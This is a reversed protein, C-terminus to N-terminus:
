GHMARRAQVLTSHLQPTTPRPPPLTPLTVRGATAVDLGAGTANWGRRGVDLAAAKGAQLTSLLLAGAEAVSGGGLTLVGNLINAAMSSGKLFCVLFTVAGCGLMYAQRIDPKALTLTEAVPKVIGVILALMLFRYALRVMYTVTGQGIWGTQKCMLFPLLVLLTPLAFAQEIQVIFIVLAMIAFCATFVVWALFYGFTLVPSLAVDVMGAISSTDWQELLVVSMDLGLQYYAGPNLFQASRLTGGAMYLGMDIGQKIVLTFLWDWRAVAWTLLALRAAYGVLHKGLTNSQLGRAIRLLLELLAFFSLTVFVWPYILETAQGLASKFANLLEVFFSVRTPDM